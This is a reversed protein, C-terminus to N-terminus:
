LYSHVSTMNDVKDDRWRQSNEIQCKRCQEYLLTAASKIEVFQNVVM